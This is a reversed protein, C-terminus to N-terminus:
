VSIVGAMRLNQRYKKKEVAVRQMQRIDALRTIPAPTAGAEASALHPM